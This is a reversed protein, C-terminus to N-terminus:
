GMRDPGAGQSAVMATLLPRGGEEANGSFLCLPLLKLAGGVRFLSVGDSRHCDKM